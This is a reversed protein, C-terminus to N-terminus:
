LVIRAAEELALHADIPSAAKWLASSAIARTVGHKALASLNKEHVGGDLAIDAAPFLARTRQIKALIEEGLFKQGSSGPHVGMILIEDTAGIFPKCIDPVVDPNLTLTLDLKLAQVQAIVKDLRHTDANVLVRRLFPVSRHWSLIHLSPNQVMLHIELEPLDPMDGIIAEDHWCTRDHMTGDLIDIHWRGSPLQHAYQMYHRFDQEDKALIAPTIIMLKESDLTEIKKKLTKLKRL